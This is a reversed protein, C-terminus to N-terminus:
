KKKGGGCIAAVCCFIIFGIGLPPYAMTLVMGIVAIIIGM